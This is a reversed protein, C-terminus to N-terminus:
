RMGLLQAQHKNISESLKELRSKKDMMSNYQVEVSKKASAIKSPTMNPWGCDEYSRVVGLAAEYESVAMMYENNLSQQRM